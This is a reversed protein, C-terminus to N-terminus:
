QVTSFVMGEYVDKDLETVGSNNFLLLRWELEHQEAIQQCMEILSPLAEERWEVTARVHSNWTGIMITEADIDKGANKIQFVGAYLKEVKEIMM